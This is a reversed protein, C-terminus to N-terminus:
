RETAANVRLDRGAFSRGDMAEIAGHADVGAALEVFAFGRPEGTHRDTVISVESVAFGAEIFVARLEDETAGYALNGVFLRTNDAAKERAVAFRRGPNMAREIAALVEAESAEDKDQPGVEVQEFDPDGPQGSAPSSGTGRKKERRRAAKAQRAQERKNRALKQANKRAM